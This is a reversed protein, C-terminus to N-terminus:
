HLTAPQVQGATRFWESASPFLGAIWGAVALALGGILLAEVAIGLETVTLFASGVLAAGAHVLLLVLQGWRAGGRRNLLMALLLAEVTVVVGLSAIATWYVVDVVSSISSATYTPALRLLTEELEAAISDQSLFAILMAGATAVFGLLWLMRAVRIPRPPPVAKLVPPPREDSLSPREPPAVEDAADAGGARHPPRENGGSADSM